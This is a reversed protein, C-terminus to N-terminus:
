LKTKETLLMEACVIFWDKCYGSTIFYSSLNPEKRIDNQINDQANALILTPNDKLYEDLQNIISETDNKITIETILNFSSIDPLSQFVVGTFRLESLMYTDLHWQKVLITIKKVDNEIVIKEIIGDFNECENLNINNSKM